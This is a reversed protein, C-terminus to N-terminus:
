PMMKIQILKKPLSPVNSQPFMPIASIVGEIKCACFLPLSLFVVMRIAQEASSGQINKDVDAEIQFIHKGVGMLRYHQSSRQISKRCRSCRSLFGDNHACPIKERRRPGFTMYSMTWIEQLSVNLLM